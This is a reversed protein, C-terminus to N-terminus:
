MRVYALHNKRPVAPLPFGVTSDDLDEWESEKGFISGTTSGAYLSNVREESPLGVDDYVGQEDDQMEDMEDMEEEDVSSYDNVVLLYHGGEEGSEDARAEAHSNATVDKNAPEEDAFSGNARAARGIQTECRTEVDDYIGDSDRCTADAASNGDKTSVPLGM